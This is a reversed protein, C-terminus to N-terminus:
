PAGEGPGPPPAASVVDRHDGDSARVDTTLLWGPLRLCNGALHSRDDDSLSGVDEPM